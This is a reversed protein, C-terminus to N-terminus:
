LYKNTTKIFQAITAHEDRVNMGEQLIQFIFEGREAQM